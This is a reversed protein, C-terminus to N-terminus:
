NTKERHIILQKIRSFLFIIGVSALPIMLVKMMTQYRPLAFFIAAIFASHLFYLYIFKLKPINFSKIVGIIFLILISVSPILYILSRARSDTLNFVWLEFQKRIGNQVFRLPNEKIYIIARELYMQNLYVEFSNNRPLVKIKEFMVEEGWGGVDSANNGRYLNQGVNTTLPVLHSLEVSNRISWPLIFLIIIMLTSFVFKFNKKIVFVLLLLLAFLVLESRLYILFSLLLPISFDPKGKEYFLLTRYITFLLALQVIITPSFSVVAYIFEPLVAYIAITLIAAMRGFLKECLKFLVFILIASCVIHFSIILINILFNDNLFFFPLIIFVYGPPMYASPFPTVNEKYKYELSDDEFYFLSYGNSNIINKAIEGYEWQNINSVDVFQWVFIFRLLVALM